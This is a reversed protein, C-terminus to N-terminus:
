CIGTFVKLHLWKELWEFAHPCLRNVHSVQGKSWEVPSIVFHAISKRPSACHCVPFRRKPSLLLWSFSEKTVCKKAYEQFLEVQVRSQPQWIRFHLWQYYTHAKTQHRRTLWCPFRHCEQASSAWITETQPQTRDEEEEIEGKSRAMMRKIACDEREVGWRLSSEKGM